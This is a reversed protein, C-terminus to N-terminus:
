LVPAMVAKSSTAPKGYCKNVFQAIGKKCSKKLVLGTREFNNNNIQQM